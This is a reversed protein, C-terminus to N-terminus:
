LAKIEDLTKNIEAIRVTARASIQQGRRAFSNWLELTEKDPETKIAPRDLSIQELRSKEAELAKVDILVEKVEVPKGASNLTIM